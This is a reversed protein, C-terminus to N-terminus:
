DAAADRYSSVPSSCLNRPARENWSLGKGPESQQLSTNSADGPPMLHGAATRDRPAKRLGNGLLSVRTRRDGESGCERMAKQPEKLAKQRETSQNCGRVPIGVLPANHGVWFDLVVGRELPQDVQRVGSIWGGPFHQQIMSTISQLSECSLNEMAGAVQAAPFFSGIDKLVAQQTEVVGQRCRFDLAHPVEEVKGRQLHTPFKDIKGSVVKSGLANSMVVM